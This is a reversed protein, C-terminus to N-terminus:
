AFVLDTDKRLSTIQDQLEAIRRHLKTNEAQLAKCKAQLEEYQALTVSRRQRAPSAEKKDAERDLISDYMASLDGKSWDAKKPYERLVAAIDLYPSRNEPVIVFLRVAYADLYKIAKNHDGAILESGLFDPDEHVAVLEAAIRYADLRQQKLATEVNTIREKWRDM